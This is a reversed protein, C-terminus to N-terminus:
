EDSGPVVVITSGPEIKETTSSGDSWTIVVENRSVFTISVPSKSGEAAGEGTRFLPRTLDACEARTLAGCQIKLVRIPTPEATASDSPSAGVIAGDRPLPLLVIAAIVGLALPVAALSPSAWRPPAPKRGDSIADVNLPATALDRTISRLQADFAPRRRLAAACSPCGALHRQDDATPDGGNGILRDAVHGRQRWSKM